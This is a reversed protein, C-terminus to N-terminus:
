TGKRPIDFELSQLLDELLYVSLIVLESTFINIQLCLKKFLTSIHVNVLCLKLFCYTDRIKEKRKRESPNDNQISSINKYKQKNVQKSKHKHMKINFLVNKELCVSKENHSLNPGEVYNSTSKYLWEIRLLTNM